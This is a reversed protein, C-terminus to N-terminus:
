GEGIIEENSGRTTTASAPASSEVKPARMASPAISAPVAWVNVTSNAVASPALAESAPILWGKRWSSTGAPTVSVSSGVLSCNM